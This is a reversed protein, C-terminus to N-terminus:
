SNGDERSKWDDRHERLMGGRGVELHCAELAGAGAGEGGPGMHGHAQGDELAAHLEGVALHDVAALCRGQGLSSSPQWDRKRARMRQHHGGPWCSDPQKLRCQCGPKFAPAADGARVPASTWGRVPGSQATGLPLLPSSWAISPASSAVWGVKFSATRGRCPASKRQGDLGPISGRAKLGPHGCHSAAHRIPQSTHPIKLKFLPTGLLGRLGPREGGQCWDSHRTM